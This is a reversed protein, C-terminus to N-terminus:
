CPIWAGRFCHRGRRPEHLLIARSQILQAALLFLILSQEQFEEEVHNLLARGKLGGRIGQGPDDWVIGAGWMWGMAPKQTVGMTGSAWRWPPLTLAAGNASPVTRTAELGLRLRSSVSGESSQLDDVGELTTHVMLLDTTTVSIGADGGDLLM